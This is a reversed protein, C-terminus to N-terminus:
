EFKSTTEIEFWISVAAPNTETITQDTFQMQITAQIPTSIRGLFTRSANPSGTCNIETNHAIGDIAAGPPWGVGRGNQFIALEFTMGPYCAATVWLSGPILNQEMRHTVGVHDMQFCTWRATEPNSNRPVRFEQCMEALNRSGINFRPDLPEGEFSPIMSIEAQEAYAGTDTRLSTCGM